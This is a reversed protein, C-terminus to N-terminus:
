EPADESSSGSEVSVCSGNQCSCGSIEPFGCIGVSNQKACERNVAEVDIVASTNVCAPYYGCCNHVDKVVCDSDHTCAYVNADPAASVISPAYTLLFISVALLALRKIM